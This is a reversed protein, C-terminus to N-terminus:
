ATPPHSSLVEQKDKWCVAGTGGKVKCLLEGKKLMKPGFNEPMGKRNRLVTGCSNIKRSFLHSFLQPSSFYDDM